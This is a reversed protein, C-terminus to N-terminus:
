KENKIEYGKSEYNKCKIYGKYKHSIVEGTVKVYGTCEDENVKNNVKIGFEKLEDLTVYVSNGQMPLKKLNSDQGYYMQAAEKLDNELAVYEKNKEKINIGIFLLLSVLVIIFIIWVITLKKM